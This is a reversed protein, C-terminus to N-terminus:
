NIFKILKSSTRKWKRNIYIRTEEIEAGKYGTSSIIRNIIEVRLHIVCGAPGFSYIEATGDMTFRPKPFNMIEHIIMGWICVAFVSSLVILAMRKIRADIGVAVNYVMEICKRENYRQNVYAGILVALISALIITITM